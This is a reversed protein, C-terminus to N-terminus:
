SSLILSARNINHSYVNKQCYVKYQKTSSFFLIEYQHPVHITTFPFTKKRASTAHTTANCWCRVTCHRRLPCNLTRHAIILSLYWLNKEQVNYYMM